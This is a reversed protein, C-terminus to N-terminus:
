TIAWATLRGGLNNLSDAIDSQEAGLVKERVALARLISDFFIILVTFNNIMKIMM